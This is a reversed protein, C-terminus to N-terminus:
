CDARDCRARGLARRLAALAGIAPRLFASKASRQTSQVRTLGQAFFLEPQRAQFYKETALMYRLMDYSGEMLQSQEVGMRAIEQAKNSAIQILGHTFAWLM